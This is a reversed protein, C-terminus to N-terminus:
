RCKGMPVHSPQRIPLSNNASGLIWLRLWIARPFRSGVDNACITRHFHSCARIDPEAMGLHRFAPLLLSLAATDPVSGILAAEQSCRCLELDMDFDLDVDFGSDVDLDVDVNFDLDLNYGLDEDFDLNAGLDLDVDFDLDENRRRWDYHGWVWGSSSQPM